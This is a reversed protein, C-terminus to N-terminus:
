VPGDKGGIYDQWNSLAKRAENFFHVKTSDDYLELVKVLGKLEKGELILKAAANFGEEWAVWDPPSTCTEIWEDSLEDRQEELKKPIKM